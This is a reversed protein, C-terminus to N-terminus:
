LIPNKKVNLISTANYYITILCDSLCDFNFNLYYKSDEKREKRIHVIKISNRQVLVNNKVITVRTFNQKGEDNEGENSRNGM